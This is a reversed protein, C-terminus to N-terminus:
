VELSDVLSGPLEVVESAAPREAEVAESRSYSYRVEGSGPLVAPVDIVIEHLHGGSSTRARFPVAGARPGLAALLSRSTIRSRTLDMMGVFEYGGKRVASVVCDALDAAGTHDGGRLLRLPNGAPLDAAKGRMWKKPAGPLDPMRVYVDTDFQLVEIRLIQDDLDRLTITMRAKRGALDIRTDTLVGPAWKVVTIVGQNTKAAADALKEVPSLQKPAPTEAERPAARDPLGARIGCGAVSLCMAAALVFM